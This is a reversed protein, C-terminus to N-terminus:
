QWTHMIHTNWLTDIHTMTSLNTIIVLVETFMRTFIQQHVQARIQSQIYRSISKQNTLKAYKLKTLVGLCNELTVSGMQVGVKLRHSNKHSWMKM